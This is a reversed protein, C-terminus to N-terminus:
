LKSCNRHWLSLISDIKIISASSQCLRTKISIGTNYDISRRDQAVCAIVLIKGQTHGISPASRVMVNIGWIPEFCKLLCFSFLHEFKEASIM